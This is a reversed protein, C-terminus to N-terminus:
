IGIARIVDVNQNLLSNSEIDNVFQSWTEKEVRRACYHSAMRIFSCLTSYLDDDLTHIRKNQCGYSLYMADRYNAKGRYRFCQHLFGLTKKELHRDRIKQAERKRFNSCGLQKFEKSRKVVFEEHERRWDATGRLHSLCILFAQEETQAPLLLNYAPDPDPQLRDIEQGYHKKILTTTRLSFPFVAYNQSAIQSDWARATGTHDDQHSGDQAAIMASGAYYIGYYWTIIATRILDYPNGSLASIRHLASLQHFGMLMQEFVVTDSTRNVKRRSVKGKYFLSLAEDSFSDEPCLVSLANVWNAAGLLSYSPRTRVGEERFRQYLWQTM